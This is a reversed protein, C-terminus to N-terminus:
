SISGVVDLFNYSILWENNVDLWSEVIYSYFSYLIIGKYDLMVM